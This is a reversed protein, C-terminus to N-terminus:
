LILYISDKKMSELKEHKSAAKSYIEESMQVISSEIESISEAVRLKELLNFRWTLTLYTLIKFYNDKSIKWQKYTQWIIIQEICQNKVVYDSIEKELDIWHESYQHLNIVDNLDFQEANLERNYDQHFDDNIIWPWVEKWFFFYPQWKIYGEQRKKFKHKGKGSYNIYEEGTHNFITPIAATSFRTFMPCAWHTWVWDSTWSIYSWDARKINVSWIWWYYSLTDPRLKNFMIGSKKDWFFKKWEYNVVSISIDSQFREIQLDSGELKIKNGIILNFRTRLFKEVNELRIKRKPRQKDFNPLKYKWTVTIEGSNLTTTLKVAVEKLLAIPFPKKEELFNLLGHQGLEGQALSDVDCSLGKKYSM